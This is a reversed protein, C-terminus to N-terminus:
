ETRKAFLAEAQKIAGIAFVEVNEARHTLTINEGTGGFIVSHVGFNTGSRLSHITVKGFAGKAQSIRAALTKATGSPADPKSRRHVEVVDVDWDPHATAIKACVDTFLAIGEAFNASQVVPLRESLKDIEFQQGANRGTVGTVLPCNCAVCYDIVAKTAQPVSFDIVVDANCEAMNDGVDKKTVEHGRKEALRVVASGVRGNSGFVTLRM